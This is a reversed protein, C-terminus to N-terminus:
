RDLARRVEHAVGMAADFIPGWGSCGGARRSEASWAALAEAQEVTLPVVQGALAQVLVEDAAEVDDRAGAPLESLTGLWRRLDQLSNMLHMIRHAQKLIATRLERVQRRLEHPPASELGDYVGPPPAPTLYVYPMPSTKLVKRVREIFTTVHEITAEQPVAMILELVWRAGRPNVDQRIKRGIIAWKVNEM